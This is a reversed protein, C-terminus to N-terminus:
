SGTQRFVQRGRLRDAEMGIQKDTQRDAQRVVRRDVETQRVM